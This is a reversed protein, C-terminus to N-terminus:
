RERAHSSPSTKTKEAVDDGGDSAAGFPDGGKGKAPDRSEKEAFMLEQREDATMIRDDIQEGTDTRFTTVKGHVYDRRVECEVEREETGTSIIASLLSTVEELLSIEGDRKKNELKKAEEAMAVKRMNQVLQRGRELLTDDDLKVPLKQSTLSIKVKDNKKPDPAKKTM